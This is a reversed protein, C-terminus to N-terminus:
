SNLSNAVAAIIGVRDQGLVSVIVRNKRPEHSMPM